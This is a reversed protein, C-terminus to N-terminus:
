LHESESKRSGPDLGTKCIKFGFGIRIRYWSGNLCDSEQKLGPLYIDVLCLPLGYIVDCWLPPFPDGSKHCITVLPLPPTLLETIDCPDNKYAHWM